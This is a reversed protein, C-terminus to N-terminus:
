AVEHKRSCAIAAAGGAIRDQMAQVEATGVQGLVTLYNCMDPEITTIEGSDSFFMLTDNVKTLQGNSEFLIAYFAKSITPASTAAAAYAAYRPDATTVVPTYTAKVTQTIQAVTQM